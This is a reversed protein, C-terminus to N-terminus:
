RITEALSLRVQLDKLLALAQQRPHVQETTRRRGSKKTEEDTIKDM